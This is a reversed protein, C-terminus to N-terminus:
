ASTRRGLKALIPARYSRSVILQAGSQMVLRWSGDALPSARVVKTLNVITSRHVRAFTAPDLTEAIATLTGRLLGEHGQWTVVVYNGAAALSEVLEVAVPVRANGVSVLLQESRQRDPQGGAHRRAADLMGALLAHQRHMAVIGSGCVIATFSLMEVPLREVAHAVISEASARSFHADLMAVLLGHLPVAAIALIAIGAATALTFFRRRFLATAIAAVPLWGGYCASQWLLVSGLEPPLGAAARTRTIFLTAFGVSM